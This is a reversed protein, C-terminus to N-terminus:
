RVEVATLTAPDLRNKTLCELARDITVLKRKLEKIPAAGDDSVAEQGAIERRLATQAEVLGLWVTLDQELGQRKRLLEAALQGGIVAEVAEATTVPSALGVALGGGGATVLSGATLLGGIMGGPGFAALASTIAAAGAVGPAAALALGGTAALLAAAGVAIAAWKFWNIGGGLAKRAEEVAGFLDSGLQGGLWMEATLDEMAQHRVDAPVSIEFPTLVNTMALSVLAVVAEDKSLDTNPRPEAVVSAPDSLDVSLRAVENPLPRGEDENRQRVAEITAAQVKRLAEAYRARREGSLRAKTLHAYRLALVTVREVYDLPIELGREVLVLEKSLSGFLAQGVARAVSPDALYVTAAHPNPPGLVTRVRFDVMWPFVSSIGRHTTVPDAINWFNVWWDLNTPPEKLTGALRDVAFTPNALPSGITILAEVAVEPPLRRLLDAAIVSGLSHAVIILRGSQPIRLLIRRLVQARVKPETLYKKAQVFVPTELAARALAEAGLVGIGQEQRGLTQEIAATRREFERRNKKAADGAPAKITLGPLPENDDADKLAHAYKPAVVRVDELDRYGLAVLAESLVPKWEEGQDGAGVGHLLLLTPRGSTPLAATEQASM